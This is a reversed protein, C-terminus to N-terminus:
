THPSSTLSFSRLQHIQKSCTDYCIAPVVSNDRRLLVSLIRRILGMTFSFFFDVFLPSSLIYPRHLSGFYCPQPPSPKNIAPFPIRKWLKPYAVFMKDAEHSILVGNQKTLAHQTAYRYPRRSSQVFIPQFCSRILLQRM